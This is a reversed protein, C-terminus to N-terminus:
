REFVIQLLDPRDRLVARSANRLARARPPVIGNPSTARRAGPRLRALAPAWTASAADSVVVSADVSSAAPAYAGEQEPAPVLVPLHEARVVAAGAARGWVTRAQAEWGIGAPVHLIDLAQGGLFGTAYAEDETDLAVADFEEAAAREASVPGGAVEPFIRAVRYDPALVAALTLM